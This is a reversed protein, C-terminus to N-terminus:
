PLQARLAAYSQIFAPEIRDVLASAADLSGAAIEDLQRCLEALDVAALTACSGQLQHAIGRVIESDSDAIAQRIMALDMPTRAGFIDVIQRLVDDSGLDARLRDLAARDVRGAVVTRAPSAAEGTPSPADTTRPAWRALVRDLEAAKVPKSIYDDMGSDLCKARDSRLANATLAIVPMHASDGERRRLEATADYGNLEPMQCDMLVAAFSRQALAELAAHGDGVVEAQYGRRRVMQVALAQNVDNDEAILIVPSSGAQASFREPAQQRQSHLGLAEALASQLRIRRVPKTMYIDIGAERAQRRQGFSSTLMVMAPTPFRDDRHMEEALEIGTMDPMNMDIAACQFPEGRTAADRLLVLAERGSAAAAVPMQWRQALQEILRRNTANDDVALLRTGVLAPGPALALAEPEGPELPLRVLLPQGDGPTSDAGIEGEM